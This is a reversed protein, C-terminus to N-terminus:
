NKISYRIVKDNEELAYVVIRNFLEKDVKYEGIEQNAFEVIVTILNSM